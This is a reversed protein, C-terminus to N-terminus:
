FFREYPSFDYRYDDRIESLTIKDELILDDLLWRGEEQRGPEVIERTDETDTNEALETNRAPSRVPIGTEEFRVYLEGTISEERGVFRVIFSVSGDAERRGGGLRYTRTNISRIEELASETIFSSSRQLVPADNRGRSLASLLEQAFLYAGLPAAGQGLEGIVLDEPYRPSEGREPRRLAEPVPVLSTDTEQPIIM